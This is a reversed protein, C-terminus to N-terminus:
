SHFMKALHSACRTSSSAVRTAALSLASVAGLGVRCALLRPHVEVELREEVVEREEVQRQVPDGRKPGGGRLEVADDHHRSHARPEVGQRRPKTNGSGCRVSTCNASSVPRRSCLSPMGSVQSSASRSRARRCM